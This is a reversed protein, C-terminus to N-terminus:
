AVRSGISGPVKNGEWRRMQRPIIGRGRIQFRAAAKAGFREIDVDERGEEGRREEQIELGTVRDRVSVRVLPAAGM